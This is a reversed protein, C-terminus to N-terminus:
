KEKEGVHDKEVMNDPKSAQTDSAEISAFAPLRRPNTVPSWMIAARLYVNRRHKLTGVTGRPNSEPLSSVRSAHNKQFVDNSGDGSPRTTM